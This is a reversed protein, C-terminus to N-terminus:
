ATRRQWNVSAKGEDMVRLLDFESVLGVLTRDEEAVLVSGFGGATMERTVQECTKNMDYCYVADQMFQEAKLGKFDRAGVMFDVRRM